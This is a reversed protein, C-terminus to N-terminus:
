ILCVKGITDDPSIIKEQPAEQREGQQSPIIARTSFRTSKSPFNTSPSFLTETEVSGPPIQTLM